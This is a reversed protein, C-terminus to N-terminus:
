LAVGMSKMLKEDHEAIERKFHTCWTKFRHAWGDDYAVVPEGAYIPGACIKCFFAPLRPAEVPEPPM